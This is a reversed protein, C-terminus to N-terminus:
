TQGIWYPASEWHTAKYTPVADELLPRLDDDGGMFYEPFVTEYHERAALLDIELYYDTRTM